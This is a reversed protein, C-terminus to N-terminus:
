PVGALERYIEATQAVTKSIDFYQTVRKRGEIGMSRTKGSDALLKLVAAAFRDPDGPEVLLGTQGDSVAEPIGGTRTAVVPLQMAMADLISTCLGEESSSMCFVDMAALVAPIDTRFGTLIIRSNGPSKALHSEITPMLRGAGALIFVTEPLTKLVTEAARVFTMPDKHAVLAAVMGVVTQEKGIGLERRIEDRRYGPQFADLDIGSHVTRIRGGDLGDEMLIERIRESVTLIIDPGLRYKLRSLGLWTQRIHFDTRRSYVIKLEPCAVRRVLAAPVLGHSTHVHFVSIDNQAICRRLDRYIGPSLEGTGSLPLVPIGARGARDALASKHPAAIISSFEDAPLNRALHLVQAEGGRWTRETDIHVVGIRTAM